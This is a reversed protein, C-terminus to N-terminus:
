SASLCRIGFTLKPVTYRPNPNKALSPNIRLSSCAPEGAEVGIQALMIIQDARLALPDEVNVGRNKLLQVRM